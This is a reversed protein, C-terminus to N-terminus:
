KIIRIDPVIVKDKKGAITVEKLVVLTKSNSISALDRSYSFVTYKGPHLFDFVYTGNYDTKATKGISQEDGYILYVTEGPSYYSAQYICNQPISDSTYDDVYVMGTISAQGGPGPEKKCSSIMLVGALFFLSIPIAKKM